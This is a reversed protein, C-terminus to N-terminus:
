RKFKGYELFNVVQEMVMKNRMMMPHTVPMVLHDQMGTVKTKEVSVKGDDRGPIMLSLIPNITYGGAIVGLEFNVEGLSIPTSNNDTGLELGAPGHIWEFAAVTKLKDILESGQNPPGLMVVRGLNNVTHTQMYDRVLIGGMSHTVFHVKHDISCQQLAPKIAMTALDHIAKKNSPYDINITQYGHNELHLALKQMSTDSRMLGHLLIVCDNAMVTQSTIM